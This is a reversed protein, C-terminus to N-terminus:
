EESTDLWFSVTSDTPPTPSVKIVSDDWQNIKETSVFKRNEDELIETAPLQGTVAITDVVTSGKLIQFTISTNQYDTVAETLRVYYKTNVKVVSYDNVELLTRNQAVLIVGDRNIDFGKLPIEFDKQGNSTASITYNYIKLKDNVLANVREEANQAMTKAETSVNKATLSTEVAVASDSNTQVALVKVDSMDDLLQQVSLVAITNGVEDLSKSLTFTFKNASPSIKLLGNTEFMHVEIKYRGYNLSNNVINFEVFGDETISLPEITLLTGVDEKGEGDRGVKVLVREFKTLDVPSSDFDIVQLKISSGTDLTRIYNTNNESYLRM